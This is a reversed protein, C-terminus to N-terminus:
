ESENLAQELAEISGKYGEPMPLIDEPIFRNMAAFLARAPEIGGQQVHQLALMIFSARYNQPM